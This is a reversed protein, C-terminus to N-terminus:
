SAAPAMPMVQALSPSASASAAAPTRVDTSIAFWSTPAALSARRTANARWSGSSITATSEACCTSASSAASAPVSARTPASTSASVPM